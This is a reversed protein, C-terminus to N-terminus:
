KLIETSLPLYKRCNSSGCHCKTLNTKNEPIEWDVGDNYDFTLEEGLPIERVAFLALMPTVDHDSRVPYMKLNPRCGHNIFRGANGHHRPDVHTIVDNIFNERVSILYNMEHSEKVRVQAEESTLVEGAYECVFQGKELRAGTTVKM